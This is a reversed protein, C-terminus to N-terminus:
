IFLDANRHRKTFTGEVNKSNSPRNWTIEQYTLYRIEKKIQKPTLLRICEEMELNNALFDSVEQDITADNPTFVDALREAFL